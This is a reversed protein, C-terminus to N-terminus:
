CLGNKWLKYIKIFLVVSNQKFQFCRKVLGKKLRLEKEYSEVRQDENIIYGAICAISMGTMNKLEKIKENYNNEDMDEILTTYDSWFKFVHLIEVFTRAPNTFEKGSIWRIYQRTVGTKKAIYSHNCRVFELFEKDM